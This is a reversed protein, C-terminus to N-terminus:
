TEEFDSLIHIHLENLEAETPPADLAFSEPDFGFPMYEVRPCGASRLPDLLYKGWILFLDCRELNKIVNWTTQDAKFPNDPYWIMLRAGTADLAEHVVKFHLNDAKPLYLVDPRYDKCVKLFRLSTTASHVRRGVRGLRHYNRKGTMLSPETNDWHLVDVGLSRLIRASKAEHSWPSTPGVILLKEVAAM